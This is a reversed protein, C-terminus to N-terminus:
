SFSCIANVQPQSAVFNTGCSQVKARALKLLALSSGHHIQSVCTTEAPVFEKRYVLTSLRWRHIDM